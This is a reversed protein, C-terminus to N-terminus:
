VGDLYELVLPAFKTADNNIIVADTM